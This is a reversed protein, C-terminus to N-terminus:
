AFKFPANALVGGMWIQVFWRISPSFFDAVWSRIPTRRLLDTALGRATEDDFYMLLGETIVLAVRGENAVQDLLNTRQTSDALNVRERRLECRPKENQLLREKEDIMAPLDAEVWLLSSPLPLRYPRTDLGAALNVILTCGRAIGALVMDDILKTRVIMPWGNRAPLPVKAAIASGLAGALRQAFPDTFLADPRASEWARYVAVWRATDSVGLVLTM